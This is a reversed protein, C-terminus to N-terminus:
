DSLAAQPAGGGHVLLDAGCIKVGRQAAAETLSKGRVISLHRNCAAEPGTEFM